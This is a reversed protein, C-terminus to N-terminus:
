NKNKDCVAVLNANSNWSCGKCSSKRDPGIVGVKIKKNKM